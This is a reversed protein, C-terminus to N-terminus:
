APRAAGGMDDGMEVVQGLGNAFFARLEWIAAGGPACPGALGVDTGVPARAAPEAAAGTLALGALVAAMTLWTNRNM